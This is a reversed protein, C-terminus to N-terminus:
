LVLFQVPKRVDVIGVFMCVVLLINVFMMRNVSLCLKGFPLICLLQLSKDSLMTYVSVNLFLMLLAFLKSRARLGSLSSIVESICVFCISPTSLLVIHSVSLVCM